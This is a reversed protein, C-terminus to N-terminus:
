GGWESKRLDRVWKSSDELETRDKWMGIFPEDELSTLPVSQRKRNGSRARELLFSIFDEVQRKAEQPLKEFDSWADQAM